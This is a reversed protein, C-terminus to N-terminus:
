RTGRRPAISFTILDPVLVVVSTDRLLSIPLHFVHLDVLHAIVDFRRKVFRLMFRTQNAVSLSMLDRVSGKWHELLPISM